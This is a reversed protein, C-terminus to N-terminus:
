DSCPGAPVLRLWDGNGHGLDFHRQQVDIISVERAIGPVQVVLREAKELAPRLDSLAVPRDLSGNFGTRSATARQETGLRESTFIATRRQADWNFAVIAASRGEPDMEGIPGWHVYLSTDPCGSLASVQAAAEKAAARVLDASYSQVADQGCHDTHLEWGGESVLNLRGPIDGGGEALDVINLQKTTGSALAEAIMGSTSLDTQPLSYGMLTLRSAGRLAAYAQQWIERTVPNGYYGSKLAAPPVIFRERGPASWHAEDSGVPEAAGFVGPLRVRRVTAGSADGPTWWWNLSGHLKWLRFTPQPPVNGDLEGLSQGGKGEPLYNLVSAWSVRAGTRWDRLKLTDLACEVLPDYNFTLVHSERLHWISILEGLWVPLRGGLVQTVREDLIEAIIETTRAFVAQYALTDAAGLYPQPEARRSLWAEFQGGRFAPSRRSPTLQFAGRQHAQNGLDDTLPMCSSVAKSFGAGLIFVERELAPTDSAAM